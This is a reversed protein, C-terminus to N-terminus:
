RQVKKPVDFSVRKDALMARSKFSSPNYPESSTDTDKKLNALFNTREGPTFQMSENKDVKDMCKCRKKTVLCRCDCKEDICYGCVGTNNKRRRVPISERGDDSVDDNNRTDPTMEDVVDEDSSEKEDDDDDDVDKM